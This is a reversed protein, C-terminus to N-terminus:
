KCTIISNRSGKELEALQPLSGGPKLCPSSTGRAGADETNECVDSM